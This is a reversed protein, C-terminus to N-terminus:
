RNSESVLRWVNDKTIEHSFLLIIKKGNEKLANLKEPLWKEVYRKGKIEVWLDYEPLFFDPYYKKNKGMYLYPFFISKNKDWKINLADLTKAFFQEAGSDMQFGKYISRHVRTSNERLGGCKGSSRFCRASCYIKTGNLTDNFSEKCEPCIKIIKRAPVREINLFNEASNLEKARNSWELRREPTWNINSGTTKASCLRGCFHQKTKIFERKEKLGQKGCRECNFPILFGLFLRRCLSSCFYKKDKNRTERLSKTPVQFEVQCHPCIVNSYKM